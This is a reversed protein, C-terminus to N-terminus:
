TSKSSKTRESLLHYAIKRLQPYSSDAYIGTHSGQYVKIINGLEPYIKDLVRKSKELPIVSDDSGNWLGFKDGKIQYLKFISEALEQAMGYDIKTNFRGQAIDIIIRRIIESSGKFNRYDTFISQEHHMANSLMEDVFELIRRSKTLNYSLDNIGSPAKAEIINYKEPAHIASMIVSGGGMSVGFFDVPTDENKGSLQNFYRAIHIPVETLIIDILLRFEERNISPLKRRDFPLVMWASNLGLASMKKVGEIAALKEEGYGGSCILIDNDILLNPHYWVDVRLDHTQLGEKIKIPAIVETFIPEIREEEPRIISRYEEM